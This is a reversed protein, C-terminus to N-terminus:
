KGPEPKTENSQAPKNKRPKDLDIGQKLKKKCLEMADDKNLAPDQQSLCDTVMQNDRNTPDAPTTGPGPGCNAAANGAVAILLALPLGRLCIMRTRM